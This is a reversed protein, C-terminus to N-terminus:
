ITYKHSWKYNTYRVPLVGSNFVLSRSDYNNYVKYYYICKLAPLDGANSDMDSCNSCIAILSYTELSSVGKVLLYLQM